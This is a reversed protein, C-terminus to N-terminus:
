GPENALEAAPQFEDIESALREAELKLFQLTHSTMPQRGDCELTFYLEAKPTQRIRIPYGEACLAGDDRLIWKLSTM